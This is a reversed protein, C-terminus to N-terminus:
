AGTTEAGCFGTEAKAKQLKRDRWIKRHWNVRWSWNGSTDLFLWQNENTWSKRTILNPTVAELSKVNGSTEERSVKIRTRGAESFSSNLNKALHIPRYIKRYNQWNNLINQHQIMLNKECHYIEKQIYMVENM